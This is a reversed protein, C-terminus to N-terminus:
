GILAHTKRRRSEELEEGTHFFGLFRRFHNEASIYDPTKEYKKHFM